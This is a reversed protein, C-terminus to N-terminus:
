NTDNQSPAVLTKLLIGLSIYDWDDDQVTANTTLLTEKAYWQLLLMRQEPTQHDLNTLTTQLFTRLTDTTIM